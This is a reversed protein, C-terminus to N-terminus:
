YSHERLRRNFKWTTSQVPQDVFEPEIIPDWGMPFTVIEFVGVVERVAFRCVGRFFGYTAGAFGGQAESVQVMNYPVEWIGTLVNSIGRGLQRTPEMRAHASIGALLLAGAMGLILRNKRRSNM